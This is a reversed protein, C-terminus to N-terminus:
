LEIGLELAGELVTGRSTISPFGANDEAALAPDKTSTREAVTHLQGALDLRLPGWQAGVGLTVVARDGDLHNHLGTQEPAPSPEWSFGARPTVTLDATVALALEAGLRLSVTDHFDPAPQPPTDPTAATYVLPLPMDSWQQWVVDAAVTLGPAPHFAAEFAVEAPDYQATGTVDLEPLPIGFADGLDATIPLEFRATSAQRWTAALALWETPRASLGVIAAYDALLEDRVRTGLAGSPGPEVRIDGHLSALALAGVGIALEDTIRIGLAGLVSVTQARNELVLFTPDGARKIDAILI